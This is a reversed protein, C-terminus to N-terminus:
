QMPQQMKEMESEIVTPFLKLSPPEGDPGGSNVLSQVYAEEDRAMRQMKMQQGQAQQMAQEHMQLHAWAADIVERPRSSYWEPDMLKSRFYEIHLPHNDMPHVQPMQGIEIQSLEYKTKEFDVNTTTKFNDISFEGLFLQNRLPDQVLDGLLGAEGFKLLNAQKAASSKPITSGAQIRINTNDQLDAGVFQQIDLGTLQRLKRRLITTFAENNVSQKRAILTLRLQSNRELAKEWRQYMPNFRSFQMERLMELSVGSTVEGPAKGQMIDATGFLTDMGSITKERELFFDQGLSTGTVKEPKTGGLGPKYHIKLGVRGSIAGDAVSGKPILWQGLAMTQRHLIMMTDIANLRRQLRVGQTTPTIGWFKGPQTKYRFHSYPHWYKKDCKAYPSDAIYLLKDNASVIMRGCPLEESPRVYVEKLIVVETLGKKNEDRYDKLAEDIKLIDSADVEEEGLTAAEGTYGEGQVNYWDRVDSLRQISYEMIVECERLSTAYKDPAIRFPSIVREEVDGLPIMVPNGLVDVVPKGNEDIQPIKSTPVWAVKWFANGTAVAWDAADGAKESDEDIESRADHVALSVKALKESKPDSSNATVNFIPNQRTLNSRAIDARLFLQNDNARPVYERDIRDPIPEYSQVRANYRIYQDGEIFRINEEWIKALERKCEQDARYHQGILDLLTARDDTAWSKKM